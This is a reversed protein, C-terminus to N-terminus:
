PTGLHLTNLGQPVPFANKPCGCPQYHVVGAVSTATAAQAPTANTFVMSGLNARNTQARVTFPHHGAVTGAGTFSGCTGTITTFTIDCQGVPTTAPGQLTGDTTVSAGGDPNLNATTNLQKKVGAVLDPNYSCNRSDASARTVMAPVSAALVATIGVAASVIQRRGARRPSPRANFYLTRAAAVLLVGSTVTRELDILTITGGRMAFTAEAALMPVVWVSVSSVLPGLSLAQAALHGPLSSRRRLAVFGFCALFLAVAVVSLPGLAPAGVGSDPCVLEESDAHATLWLVPFVAVLTLAITARVVRRRALDQLYRM